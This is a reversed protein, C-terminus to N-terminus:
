EYHLDWDNEHIRRTPLTDFTNRSGDDDPACWADLIILQPTLELKVVACGAGVGDGGDNICLGQKQNLWGLQSVSKITDRGITELPHSQLDNGQAHPIFFIRLIFFVNERM